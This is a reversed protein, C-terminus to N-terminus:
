MIYKELDKLKVDPNSRVEKELSISDIKIKAGVRIRPLFSGERKYRLWWRSVTSENLCFIKATKAQSKGCEIQNIVRERLDKSYPSTTM